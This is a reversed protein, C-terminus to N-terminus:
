QQTLTAVKIATMQVTNITASAGPGANDYCLVSVPGTSSLSIANTMALTGASPIAGSVFPTLPMAFFGGLGIPSFSCIIPASLTGSDNNVFISANVIYNGAPLTLTAVASEVDTISVDRVVTAFGDSGGGGQQSWNLPTEKGKCSQTDSDIVRLKGDGPKLCGHIVGATDPIAAYAIAGALALAAASLTVLSLGRRLNVELLRRM